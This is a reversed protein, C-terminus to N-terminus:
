CGGLPFSILFQYHVRQLADACALPKGRSAGGDHIAIAGGDASM